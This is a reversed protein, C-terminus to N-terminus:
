LKDLAEWPICDERWSRELREHQVKQQLKLEYLQAEDKAREEHWKKQMELHRKYDIITRRLCQQVDAESLKGHYRKMMKDVEANYIEDDMEDHMILLERMDYHYAMERMLRHMLGARVANDSSNLMYWHYPNNYKPGYIAIKEEETMFSLVDETSYVPTHQRLRFELGSIRRALEDKPYKLPINRPLLGFVGVHYKKSCEPCDLKSHFNGYLDFHSHVKGKGCLCKTDHVNIM